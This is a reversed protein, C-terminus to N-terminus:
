TRDTTTGDSGAQKCIAKLLRLSEQIAQQVIEDHSMDKFHRRSVLPDSGTRVACCYVLGVQNGDEDPEPGAVGTVAVAADAPSRELAGRAMAEAVEACVATKQKLLSASVGLAKAKMEKSYTVFGGQLHGGAGPVESLARAVAGATCSEATVLSLACLKAQEIVKAALDNTTM